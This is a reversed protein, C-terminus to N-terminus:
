DKLVWPALLGFFYGMIIIIITTIFAIPKEIYSFTGYQKTHMVRDRSAYFIAFSFGLSLVGGLIVSTLMAGFSLSIVINIINIGL